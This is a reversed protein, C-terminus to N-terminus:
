SSPSARRQPGTSPSPRRVELRRQRRRGDLPKAGAPLTTTSGSSDARSPAEETRTRMPAPRRVEGEGAREAIKKQLTPSGATQLKTSRRPRSRRRCKCSRRISPPTATSRTATSTTSSPSSSTTSRRDHDSRVQPRPLPRLRGDPGPLGHRQHRGPRRRQPRLGRGRDLRGRQHHRPLPQLRHRDAARADANPLLDGALQEIIFQDFPM